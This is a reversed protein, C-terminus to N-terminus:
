STDHYDTEGYTRAVLDSIRPRDTEGAPYLLGQRCHPCRPLEEPGFDQPEPEVPPDAGLLERCQALKTARHGNALLGFTRIRVFGRPLVHQMFRRLFEHAELRLEQLRGGANYNKYRFTVYDGEISVLRENSIAV